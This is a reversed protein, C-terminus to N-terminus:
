SKTSSCSGGSATTGLAFLIGHVLRLALISNLSHVFGFGVMVLFFALTTFIMVSRKNLTDILRGAFPRCFVTGIQFATMALGAQVENGGLYFVFAPQAKGDAM